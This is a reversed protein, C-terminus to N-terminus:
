SFLKLWKESIILRLTQIEFYTTRDAYIPYEWTM